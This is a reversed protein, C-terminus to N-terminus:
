RAGWGGGRMTCRLLAGTMGPLSPYWGIVHFSRVVCEYFSSVRMVDRPMVHRVLFKVSVCAVSMPPFPLGMAAFSDQCVSPSKWVKLASSSIGLTLSKRFCKREFFVLTGAVIGGGRSCC